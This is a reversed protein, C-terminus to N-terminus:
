SRSEGMKALLELALRSVLQSSHKTAEQMLEMSMPDQINLLAYLVEKLLYYDHETEIIRKFEPLASVTGHQGLIRAATIRYESVSHKLSLLLKEDYSLTEIKSLDFGCHPCLVTDERVRRWCNPCYFTLM